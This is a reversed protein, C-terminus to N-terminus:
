GPSFYVLINLILVITQLPLAAVVGIIITQSQYDKVNTINIVNKARSFIGPTNHFIKPATVEKNKM